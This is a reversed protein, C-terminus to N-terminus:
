GKRRRGYLRVWLEHLGDGSRGWDGLHGYAEELARQRAAYGPDLERPAPLSPGSISFTSPRPSPRVGWGAPPASPSPSGSTSVPSRLFAAARSALIFEEASGGLDPHLRMAASKWARKLEDESLQAGARIGLIKRAEADNM